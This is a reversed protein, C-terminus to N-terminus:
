TFTFVIRSRSLDKKVNIEAEKSALLVTKLNLAIRLYRQRFLQPSSNISSPQVKRTSTGRLIDQYHSTESLKFTVEDNCALFFLVYGADTVEAKAYGKSLARRVFKILLRVLTLKDKQDPEYVDILPSNEVYYKSLLIPM